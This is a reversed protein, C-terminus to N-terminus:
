LSYWHIPLSCIIDSGSEGTTEGCGQYRLGMVWASRLGMMWASGDDVGVDSASGASVMGGDGSQTASCACAKLTRGFASWVHRIHM